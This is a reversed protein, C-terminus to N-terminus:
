VLQELEDASRNLYSAAERYANVLVKISNSEGPSLKMSKSSKSVSTTPSDNTGLLLVVFELFHIM